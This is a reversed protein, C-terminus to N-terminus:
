CEGCFVLRVDALLELFVDLFGVAPVRMAM